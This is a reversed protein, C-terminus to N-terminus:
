YDLGVIIVYAATIGVYVLFACVLIKFLLKWEKFVFLLILPFGAWYIKLLLLIAVLIGSRIPKREILGLTLLASLPVMIPGANGFAVNGLWDTTIFAIPLYILMGAANKVELQIVVKYWLLVGVIYSVTLLLMWLISLAPEPIQALVSFVLAFAPHYRYNQDNQWLGEGIDYIPGRATLARGADVYIKTDAGLDDVIKINNAVAYIYTGVHLAVWVLAAIWCIKQFRTLANWSM